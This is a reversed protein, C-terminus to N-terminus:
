YWEALMLLESLIEQPIGAEKLRSVVSVLGDANFEDDADDIDCADSPIEPVYDTDRAGSIGLAILSDGGSVFDIDFAYEDKSSDINFELYSDDLIDYLFDYDDTLSRLASVDSGAYVAGSASVGNSDREFGDLEITIINNHMVNIDVYGSFGSKGLTGSGTVSANTEGSVSWEFDYDSGNKASLFSMEFDEEEVEFVRGLIEGKSNIYATYIIEGDAGDLSDIMDDLSDNFGLSSSYYMDTSQAIEEAIADVIEGLRGDDRIDQLVAAATQADVAIEVATCSYTNDGVTLEDSSKEVSAANSLGADLASCLIEKMTDSSPIIDEYASIYEDYSMLTIDDFDTRLYSNFLDPIGIYAEQNASDFVFESEIIDTGELAFSARAGWLSGANNIDVDMGVTRINGIYENIEDVDLDALELLRDGVTLDLSTRAAPSADSVASQMDDFVTMLNEISQSEISYYYDEPSKFVSSVINNVYSSALAYGGGLVCVLAAVIAIVAFKKKGGRKKVAGGQAIPAGCHTCFKNGDTTEGHCNPCIM